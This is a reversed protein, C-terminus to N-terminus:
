IAPLLERSRHSGHSKRIGSVPFGLTEFGVNLRIAPSGHASTGRGEISSVTEAQNTATAATRSRARNLAADIANARITQRRALRAAAPHARREAHAERRHRVRERAASPAVSPTRAKVASRLAAPVAEAPRPARELATHGRRPAVFGWLREPAFRSVGQPRVGGDQHRRGVGTRGASSRDRCKSSFAADRWNPSAAPCFRAVVECGFHPLMQRSFEM